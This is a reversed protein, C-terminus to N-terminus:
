IVFGGNPSIVQGTIFDARDSALFLVTEAVDQPSGIREIPTEDILARIDEKSFAANMDTDIVGPAVCNVTIGSPGLEKALAKTMGIVAAKSASYHVECSAGCIGWVSSINIIKGNKRHVMQPIFAKSVLFNGKVNTDFMRDWQKEGIDTFLSFESIGANNVLVDVKGAIEMSKDYLKKVDDANSIDAKVAICKEGDQTIKRCINEACEYSNRYNVVVFYGSKAALLATAAGIGRSAGTIVIVKEKYISM